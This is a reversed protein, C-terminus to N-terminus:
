LQSQIHQRFALHGVNVAKILLQTLLTNLNAIFCKVRVKERRSEKGGGREKEKM